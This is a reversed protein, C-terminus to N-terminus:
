RIDLDQIPDILIEVEEEIGNSNSKLLKTDEVQIVCDAFDPVPAGTNIKFCESGQFDNTRIAEGASVYEIVRKIGKGGSSKVAYGDKISARFEPVNIPSCITPVSQANTINKLVIELANDFSIMPFPSNRDDKGGSNTKHPCVHPIHHSPKSASTSSNQVVRHTFNVGKNEGIILDIAHPIVGKVAEFCEEVAKKSGPMNIILSVDRIGCVARSLAAFNTKQFSVLAMALTLQPAERVIVKRTAEPTM